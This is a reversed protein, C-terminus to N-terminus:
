KDFIHQTAKLILKSINQHTECNKFKLPRAVKEYALYLKERLDCAIEYVFPNLLRATFNLFFFNRRFITNSLAIISGMTNSSDCEHQAVARAVKEYALYLKERLDCAIEYVFLNLLRATFNLCFFNRRFITNSLAIISGM